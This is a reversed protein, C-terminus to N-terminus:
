TALLQLGGQKALLWADEVCRYPDWKWDELGGQPEPIQYSWGWWQGPLGEHDEGSRYQWVVQGPMGACLNRQPLLKKKREKKQFNKQQLKYEISTTSFPIHHHQNKMFPLFWKRSFQNYCWSMQGSSPFHLLCPVVCTFSLVGNCICLLTVACTWM